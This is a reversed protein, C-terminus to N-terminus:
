ALSATQSLIFSINQGEANTRNKPHIFVPLSSFISCLAYKHKPVSCYWRSCFSFCFSLTRKYYHSWKLRNAIYKTYHVFHKEQHQRAATYQYLKMKCSPNRLDAITILRFTHFNSLLLFFNVSLSLSLSLSLTLMCALEPLPLSLPISPKSLSLSLSSLPLPLSLSSLPLSPKSLSRSGM